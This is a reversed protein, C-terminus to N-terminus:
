RAKIHTHIVLASCFHVILQLKNQKCPETVLDAAAPAADTVYNDREAFTATNCIKFPAQATQPKAYFM